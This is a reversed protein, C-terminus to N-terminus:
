RFPREAPLNELTSEDHEVEMALDEKPCFGFLVKSKTRIECLQPGQSKIWPTSGLTSLLYM